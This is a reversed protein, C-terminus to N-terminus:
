PLYVPVSGVYMQEIVVGHQDYSENQCPEGNHCSHWSSASEEYYVALGLPGFFGTDTECRSYDGQHQGYDGNSAYHVDDCESRDGVDVREDGASVFLGRACEEESGSFSSNSGGSNSNYSSVSQSQGHTHCADEQGARLTTVGSTMTATQECSQYADNSGHDQSYSNSYFSDNSSYYSGWSDSENSHWSSSSCGNLVRVDAVATGISAADGYSSQEQDWGFEHDQNYGYASQNYNYHGGSYWHNYGSGQSDNSYSGANADVIDNGNSAAGADVITSAAQCDSTTYRNGYGEYWYGYNDTWFTSNGYQENASDCDSTPDPLIEAHESIGASAIPFAALAAVLVIFRLM